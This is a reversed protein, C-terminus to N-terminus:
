LGRRLPVRPQVSPLALPPTSTKSVTNKSRKRAIKNWDAVGGPGPDLTNEMTPEGFVSPIFRSLRNSLM